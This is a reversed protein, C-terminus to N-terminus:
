KTIPQSTTPMQMQPIVPKPANPNPHIIDLVEVEFVLPAFPPIPGGGQEGYGLASPIILTAKSGKNLLLLGEDWGAIVQHVGVVIHAPKYREPMMPQYVGKNEKKMAEEKINTDFVKGNTFHGIYSLVATDGPAINSGSGPKTIVYNIGSATKTVTLKKDEIYSKIKGPEAAKVKDTVGKFYDKIKAQFAADSLTGKPIVKTIRLYYNIYKSKFPPKQQGPSKKLMTDINNKVIVSDGENLLLLVSQLDGKFQTKPVMAAVPHGTEYTSTLVSDGDTKIVWEISIFDGEKIASGSSNHDVVSYLTGGGSDKFGGKCGALGLAIVALFKWNKKM